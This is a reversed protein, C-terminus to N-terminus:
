DLLLEMIAPGPNGQSLPPGLTAYDIQINDFAAKAPIGSYVSGYPGIGLAVSVRPGLSANTAFVTSQWTTGNWFFGEMKNGTRVIRLTGNSIPGSLDTSTYNTLIITFYREVGNPPGTNARGISCITSSFSNIGITVQTGNNTPWNILTFDARIDFDGILTFGAGYLGAYGSGGVNVELRNDTVQGTVEGNSYLWWLDTNYQNDTFNEIITGGYAPSFPLLFAFLLIIGGIKWLKGRQSITM